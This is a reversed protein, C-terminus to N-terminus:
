KNKNKNTKLFNLDKKMLKCYCQGDSRCDFFPCEPDCWTDDITIPYPNSAPM